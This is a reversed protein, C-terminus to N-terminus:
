HTVQLRINEGAVNLIYLGSALESTSVVDRDSAVTGQTMVQGNLNMVRYETGAAGLIQVFDNAPNPYVSIASNNVENLNNPSGQDGSNVSLCFSIGPFNADMDIWNGQFFAWSNGAVYNTGNYAMAMGADAKEEIGVLFASGASITATVPFTITNAVTGDTNMDMYWDSEAIVNGPGTGGVEYIV